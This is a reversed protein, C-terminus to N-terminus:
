PRKKSLFIKREREKKRQKQKKLKNEHKKLKVKDDEDPYMDAVLQKFTIKEKIEKGDEIYKAYQGQKSIYPMNKYLKSTHPRDPSSKIDKKIKDMRKSLMKKSYKKSLLDTDSTFYELLLKKEGATLTMNKIFKPYKILILIDDLSYTVNWTPKSKYLLRYIVYDRFSFSVNFKEMTGFVNELFLKRIKNENKLNDELSIEIDKLTLTSIGKNNKTFLDFLFLSNFYAEEDFFDEDPNLGCINYKNRTTTLEDEFIISTDIFDMMEGRLNKVRELLHKTHTIDKKLLEIIM